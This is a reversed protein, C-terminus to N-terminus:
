SWRQNGEAAEHVDTIALDVGDNIAKFGNYNTGAIITATQNGVMNAVLFANVVDKTGGTHLVGDADRYSIGSSAFCNGSGANQALWDLGNTRLTM